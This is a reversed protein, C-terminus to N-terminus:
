KDQRFPHTVSVMNCDALFGIEGLEVLGPFELAYRFRFAHFDVVIVHALCGVVTYRPWSVFLRPGYKTSRALSEHLPPNLSLFPSENLQSLHHTGYQHRM